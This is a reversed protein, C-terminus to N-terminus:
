MFGKGESKYRHPAVRSLSFVVVREVVNRCFTRRPPHDDKWDDWARQRYEDAEESTTTDDKTCREVGKPDSELFIEPTEVRYGKGFLSSQTSAIFVESRLKERDVAGLVHVGPAIVRPELPKRSTPQFDKEEKWGERLKHEEGLVSQLLEREERCYPLTKLVIHGKLELDCVRLDRLTEEVNDTTKPERLCTLNDGLKKHLERLTKIKQYLFNKQVRAKEPYSSQALSPDGMPDHESSLGSLEPFQKLTDRKLINLKNLALLFTRYSLASLALCVLRNEVRESEKLGDCTSKTKAEASSFASLSPYWLRQYIEARYYPLLLLPLRSTQVNDLNRNSPRLNHAEILKEGENIAELMTYFFPQSQSSLYNTNELRAFVQGITSPLELIKKENVADTPEEM